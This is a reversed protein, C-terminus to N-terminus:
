YGYGEDEDDFAIDYHRPTYIGEASNDKEVRTSKWGANRAAKYVKALSFKEKGSRPKMSAQEDEEKVPLTKETSGILRQYVSNAFEYPLHNVGIRKSLRGDRLIAEDIEKVECNTTAIIRVDFLSGFIGDGLNLVSSIASMNDPGRPALCQDADELVLITPGKKRYDQRTKLLLPLLDPGSMTPIMSPPVIVFMADPIEMLLGKVLHTKGGGALGDLIIVRGTPDKSKLDEVVYEYDKVVSPLYNGKELPVGAFGVKTLELSGKSNRMIAFVYGKKTPSTFLTAIVDKCFATISEDISAVSLTILKSKNISIEVMADDIAFIYEETGLSLNEYIQRAGIEKMKAIVTDFAKDSYGEHYLQSLCGTDREFLRKFLPFTAMTAPGVEARSGIPMTHKYWDTDKFMKTM